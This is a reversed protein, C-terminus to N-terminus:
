LPQEASGTTNKWDVRNSNDEGFLHSLITELTRKLVPYSYFRKGLEYNKEVMRRSLDRDMLVQHTHALTSETIFGDFKIVEFGKPMIDVEFIAYNNVVIPVKYYLAELFANGFGEITSPYTVLDAHQYADQLTYKKRGDETFGRETSIMRAVFRVPVGLLRAFERVRREYEIGEDGSAHSIVLRAKLDLRRVLEIANEIGKRQIIRTPQLIFFEDPEIGLKERIDSSYEDPPAPPSHFDMVNPIEWASIGKRRSFESASVSNIAVHQIGPTVPPFAMSIFDNVCNNIFRQREWAFDHHHAITPIRTEEIFETIAVGLPINVPISLANEVIIVHIQYQNVFEYLGAKIIAAREKIRQTLWQPRPENVFAAQNIEDNDPSRFDAEQVVYSREPLRDCIGAFYYCTHGMDELVKVWKEVELSVGDTGAFRTSIFGIRLPKSHQTINTM